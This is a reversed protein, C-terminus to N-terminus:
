GMVVPRSARALAAVAQDMTGIEGVAVREGVGYFNLCTGCARIEVGREALRQLVDLVPSDNLVLHVGGNLFIISEPVAPGAELARFFKLVLLTGLEPNGRGMERSTIMLLYGPELQM